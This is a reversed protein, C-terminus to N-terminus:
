AAKRAPPGGKDTGPQIRYVIIGWSGEVGKEANPDRAKRFTYDHTAGNDKRIRRSIATFRNVLKKANDSAAKDRETADTITDAVVSPVFFQSFQMEADKGKGKAPAPMDTMLKQYLGTEANAKGKGRGSDPISTTFSIKPLTIGNTSVDTM